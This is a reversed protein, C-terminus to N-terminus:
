FGSAQPEEAMTWYELMTHTVDSGFLQAVSVLRWGGGDGM